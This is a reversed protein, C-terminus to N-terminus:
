DDEEEEDDNEGMLALVDDMKQKNLRASSSSDGNLDATMSELKISDPLKGARMDEIAIRRAKSWPINDRQMIFRIYEKLNEM